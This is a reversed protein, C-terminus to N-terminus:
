ISVAKKDYIRQYIFVALLLALVGAVLKGVIMGPLYEADFALTFALHGAFTFAASVAFASNLLTGKKDMRNMMEFTTMSTALSSVLGMASTENIGIKGGLLKLPKALLRSVLYMLPFAGSMVAAANMCVAMGEELTALGPIVEKGTLFRLVGLALGVTILARIFIGFAGFIKVCSNPFFLLGCGIVGSFIVLPLLNMLLAGLPIACILGSVFCGVPITVIGCLLGLLLERHQERKVIGLAYPITFSVTCGMMSSVVLANFLGMKEDTAVEVSLPAGGMDNAFLSAPLISPDIHLTGAVFGLVPELLDAIFPSIIIMGIMSLAMTGLLMFGKEFEKGLGFRNGIMRDVAALLSFIVMIISVFNM